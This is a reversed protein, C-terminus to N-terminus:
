LALENVPTQGAIHKLWFFSFQLRVCLFCCESAHLDILCYFLKAQPATLVSPSSINLPFNSTISLSITHSSKTGKHEIDSPSSGAALRYIFHKKKNNDLIETSQSHHSTNLM